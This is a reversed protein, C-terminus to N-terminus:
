PVFARTLCRVGRREDDISQQNVHQDSWECPSSDSECYRLSHVGSTFAHSTTREAPSTLRQQLPLRTGEVRRFARAENCTFILLWKV